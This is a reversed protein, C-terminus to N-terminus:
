DRDRGRGHDRDGDDRAGRDAPGRWDPQPADQRPAPRAQAPAVPAPRPVSVPAAQRPQGAAQGPRNAYGASRAPVSPSDPRSPRVKNNAPQVVRMQGQQGTFGPSTAPAASAGRPVGERRMVEQTRTAQDITRGYTDRDQRPIGVHDDLPRGPQGYERGDDDGRGYGADGRGYGDDGGGHGGGHGGYPPEYHHGHHHRNWYPSQWGYWGGWGYYPYPYYFPSYWVSYYSPYYYAGYYPYYWPVGFGLGFSFSFSGSTRYYHDGLYFYDLSAWPYYPSSGYEVYAVDDYPATDEIYAVNATDEYPYPYYTVCATLLLTALGFIMAKFV